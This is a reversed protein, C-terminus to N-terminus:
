PNIIANYFSAAHGNIPLSSTAQAGPFHKLFLHEMIPNIILTDITLGSYETRLFDVFSSFVASGFGQGSLDRHLAFNNFFVRCLQPSYAYELLFLAQGNGQHVDTNPNVTYTTRLYPAHGALSFKALAAHTAVIIRRRHYNSGPEFDTATAYVYQHPSIEKLNLLQARRDSAVLKVRTHDILGTSHITPLPHGNNRRVLAAQLSDLWGPGNFRDLQPAPHRDAM